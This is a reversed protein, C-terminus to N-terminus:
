GAGGHIIRHVRHPPYYSDGSWLGRQAAIEEVVARPEGPFPQEPLVIREGRALEVIAFRARARDAGEEYGRLGDPNATLWSPAPMGAEGYVRGVDEVLVRKVKDRLAPAVHRMLLELLVPAAVVQARQAKMAERGYWERLKTWTAEHLRKGLAVNRAGMPSLGVQRAVPRMGQTEIAQALAARLEAQEPTDMRDVKNCTRSAGPLNDLTVM